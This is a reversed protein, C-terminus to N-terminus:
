STETEAAEKTTAREEEEIENLMLLCFLIAAGEDSLGIKPKIIEENPGCFDKVKMVRRREPIHATYSFGRRDLAREMAAQLITKGM